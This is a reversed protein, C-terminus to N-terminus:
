RLAIGMTGDVPQLRGDSSYRSLFVDAASLAENQDAFPRSYRKVVGDFGKVRSMAARIAPRETSGALAIAKALLHTLDYAQAMGVVSALRDPQSAGFHALAKREFQRAAPGRANSFAFTQVVVLDVTHLAPGALTPFDGGAIGWHSLVPLRDAPPLAALQRVLQNGDGENAVLIIAKAGAKRMRLYQEAFSQEGGWNFWELSALRVADDHRKVYREAAAACSRGWANNSLLLSVKDFGKSRAYALLTDMAWSDRLSLRFVYNPVHGNDVIPDAAAWPDLMLLEQAYATPLEEIAVPSFKGTFFGVMDPMRAFEAVNERGRAPVSRNDRVVLQLPRGGLVGGAGNIESIATEIGFRIADDSTSTRDSVEADLGLLVPEAATATLALCLTTMWGALMKYM